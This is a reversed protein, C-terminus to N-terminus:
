NFSELFIYREADTRRQPDLRRYGPKHRQTPDHRAAEVLRPRWVELWQTLLPMLRTPFRERWEKRDMYKGNKFEAKPIVLDYGGGPQPQLHRFELACINGIRLPRHILLRLILEMEAWTCLYVGTAMGNTTPQIAQHSPPLPHRSPDDLYRAMRRARANTNLREDSFPNCSRAIRDLEALPLARGEKDLVMRPPAQQRLSQQVKAIAYALDDNKLWHRALTKMIGIQKELTKTSMGRREQMWWWAYDELLQPACLERLTLTAKESGHVDVAYGAIQGITVETRYQTAKGKRITHKRGRQLEPECWQLYMATDHALDLPWDTLGYHTGKPAPTQADRHILPGLARHRSLSGRPLLPPILSPLCGEEVARHLLRRIANISTQVSRPLVDPAAAATMRAEIDADPLHYVEPPCTGPESGLIKAYRKVYTRLPGTASAPFWRHKVAYEFLARLM